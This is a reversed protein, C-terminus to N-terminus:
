LKSENHMSSTRDQGTWIKIKNKGNFFILINVHIYILIYLLLKNFHIDSINRDTM